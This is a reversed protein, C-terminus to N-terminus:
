IPSEFCALPHVRSISRTKSHIYCPTGGDFTEIVSIAKPATEPFFIL